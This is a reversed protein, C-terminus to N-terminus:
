FAFRLMYLNAAAVTVLMLPVGIKLWELFTCRHGSKDLMTATVINASAGILTANRRLL